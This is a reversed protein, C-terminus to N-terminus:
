GMLGGPLVHMTHGALMWVLPDVSGDFAFSLVNLVRLRRGGARAVAPEVVAVRHAVALNALSRHSVVVGKPRGTSGSTFVVYAAADLGVPGASVSGAAASGGPVAADWSDPEDVLVVSGAFGELLGASGASGTLRDRVVSSTVLVVPAAERLVLGVREVPHAPDVLVVVGGAKWVAVMVVVVEM